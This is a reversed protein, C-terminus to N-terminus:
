PDVGGQNGKRTSGWGADIGHLASSLESRGEGKARPGQSWDDDSQNVDNAQPFAVKVAIAALGM